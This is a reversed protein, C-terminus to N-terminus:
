DSGKGQAADEVKEVIGINELRELLGKNTNGGSMARTRGVIRISSGSGETSSTDFPVTDDAELNMSFATEDGDYSGFTNHTMSLPSRSGYPPSGLDQGVFNPSSTRNTAHRHRGARNAKEEEFDSTQSSNEYDSAPSSSLIEASRQKDLRTRSSLIPSRSLLSGFRGSPSRKGVGMALVGGVPVSSALSGMKTIGM